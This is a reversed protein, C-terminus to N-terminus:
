KIRLTKICHYFAREFKKFEEERNMYRLTYFKEGKEFIIIREKVPILEADVRYLKDLTKYALEIDIAKTNLLKRNSKSLVKTDKLKLRKALLDEWMAEITLPKFKVKSSKKVTVVIHTKLGQEKKPEIFIVQAYSGYSGRHEKYDWGLIYDMTINLEPDKSSYSEYKLGGFNGYRGIM